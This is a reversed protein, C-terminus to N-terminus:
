AREGRYLNQHDYLERLEMNELTAKDDPFVLRHAALPTLDGSRVAREVLQQGERLTGTLKAYQSTPDQVRKIELMNDALREDEFICGVRELWPEKASGRYVVLYLTKEM